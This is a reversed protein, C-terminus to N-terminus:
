TSCPDPCRTRWPPWPTSQLWPPGCSFSQTPPHACHRAECAATRQKCQQTCTAHMGWWAHAAQMVHTASAAARTQSSCVLLVASRDLHREALLAHLVALAPQGGEARAGEQVLAHVVDAVLVKHVLHTPPHTPSRAALARAMCNCANAAAPAQEARARSSSTCRSRQVARGHKGEAGRRGQRVRLRM